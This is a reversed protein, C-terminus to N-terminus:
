VIVGGFEPKPIQVHTRETCFGGTGPGRSINLPVFSPDREVPVFKNLISEQEYLFTVNIQCAVYFNINILSMHRPGM